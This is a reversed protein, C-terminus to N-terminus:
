KWAFTLDGLLTNSSATLNGNPCCIWNLYADDQIEPMQSFDKLYDIEVPADIGPISSQALPRVLVLAFLGIDPASCTVGEVSRVGSDGNQLAIFAGVGQV